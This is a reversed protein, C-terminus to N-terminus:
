ERELRSQWSDTPEVPLEGRSVLDDLGVLMAQRIWPAMPELVPDGLYMLGQVFPRSVLVWAVIESVEPLRSRTRAVLAEFVEITGASYPGFLVYDRLGANAACLDFVRQSVVDVYDRWSAVDSEIDLRTFVDSAAAAYLAERSPTYGYVTSEGVGVRAAVDGVTFRDLGLEVAATVLAAM